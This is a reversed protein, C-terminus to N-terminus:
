SVQIATVDQVSWRVYDLVIYYLAIQSCLTPILTFQVGTGMEPM